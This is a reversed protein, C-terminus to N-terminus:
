ELVELYGGDRLWNEPLSAKRKPSRSAVESQYKEVSRVLEKAGVECIANQLHFEFSARNRPQTPFTSLFKSAFGGKITNSLHDPKGLDSFGVETLEYRAQFQQQANRSTITKLYGADKAETIMKDFKHRGCKFVKMMYDRRIEFDTSHSMMWSLAGRTEISLREDSLMKRPIAASGARYKFKINSSM